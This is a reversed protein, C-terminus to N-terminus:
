KKELFSSQTLFLIELIYYINNVIHMKIPTQHFISFEFAIEQKIFIRKKANGFFGMGDIGIEKSM